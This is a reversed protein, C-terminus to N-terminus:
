CRGVIEEKWKQLSFQLDRMPTDPQETEWRADPQETAWNRVLLSAASEVASILESLNEQHVLSNASSISVEGSNRDIEFVLQFSSDTAIFHFERKQGSLFDRLGDLLESVALFIMCEQSPSKDKTTITQMSGAVSIHGMDFGSLVPDSSRSFELM